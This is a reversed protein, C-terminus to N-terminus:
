RRAPPTATEAPAHFATQLALELLFATPYLMFTAAAVVGSDNVFFVVATGALAAWFGQIFCPHVRVIRSLLGVPRYLLVGLGAIFTVLGDAWPTYHLLRFNMALKRSAVTYLAGPGAAAIQRVLLGVHSTGADPRLVDVAVVVAVLAVGAAALILLSRFWVRRGRFVLWAALLTAVAGLFGGLNAGFASLGIFLAAVALPALVLWRWYSHLSPRLDLLAACGTVTAGLLVGMYENGLGYYRAGGLPDYGLFSARGLRAALAVDVVIAFATGLYILVFSLPLSRSLLRALLVLAGTLGLLLLVDLALVGTQALPLLLLALPVATLSALGYRLVTAAEGPLRPALFLATLSGLIFIIQLIVYGKLVPPRETYTAVAKQEFALLAPLPNLFPQSALPRGTMSLPLPVGLWDLITPAVDSGTVLGPRRTTPSSLLGPQLNPGFAAVFTLLENRAMAEASPGPVAVLVLTRDWDVIKALEGLFADFWRLARLRFRAAQDPTLSESHLRLRATDGTEVVVLDAHAYLNRFEERLRDYATRRGTPFAPDRRALEAGVSGFPIIGREDMAIYGALRSPAESDDAQGLLAVRKGAQRLAQGLAGVTIPHDAEENLALLRPLDLNVLNGPRARFGTNREFVVGAPEGQYLESAELVLGATPSGYARTGAGLSAYGSEPLYSGAPRVNAAAIAGRQALLRQFNPPGAAVLDQLGVGDLVLLVARRQLAPRAAGAAAATSGLYAVLCLSVLLAAAMWRRLPQLSRSALM